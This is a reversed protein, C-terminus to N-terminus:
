VKLVMSHETFGLAPLSLSEWPTTGAACGCRFPDQRHSHSNPAGVGKEGNRAGSSMCETASHTCKISKPISYDGIFGFTYVKKPSRFEAVFCLGVQPGQGSSLVGKVHHEVGGLGSLSNQPSM